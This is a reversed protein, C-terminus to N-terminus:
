RHDPELVWEALLGHAERVTRGDDIQELYRVRVAVTRLCVIM